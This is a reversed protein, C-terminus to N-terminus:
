LIVFHMLIVIEVILFADCYMFTSADSMIFPNQWKLQQNEARKCAM